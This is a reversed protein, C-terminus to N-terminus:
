SLVSRKNYIIFIMFVNETLFGFATNGVFNDTKLCFRQHCKFALIADWQCIIKNVGDGIMLM